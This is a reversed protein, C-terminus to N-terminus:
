LSRSRKIRNANRWALFLILLLALALGVFAIGGALSRPQNAVELPVEVSGEGLPGTVEFTFTWAGEELLNLQSSYSTPFVPSNFLRARGREASEQRQAFVTVGVDNVSEGTSPDQITAHINLLGQTPPNPIAQIVINYPGIAGEYITPVPQEDQAEDGSEEQAEQAHLPMALALFLAVALLLALAVSAM